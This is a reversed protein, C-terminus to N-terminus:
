GVINMVINKFLKKLKIEGRVDGYSMLDDGQNLAKKYIKEM